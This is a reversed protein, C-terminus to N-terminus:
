IYLEGSKGYCLSRVSNSGIGDETTYYKTEGSRFSYYVLGSDNTGIWIGDRGNPLLCMVSHINEDLELKSFSNGDFQYLGSYTGVWIYGEYAQTICNVESSGLKNELNYVIGSYEAAYDTAYLDASFGKFILVLYLMFVLAAM